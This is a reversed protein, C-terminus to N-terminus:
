NRERSSEEAAKLRQRILYLENKPTKKGTTSKKQFVDLVYIADSLRVTYVARYTNGEHSEVIELVGAGGFGLLPKASPHKGGLQAQLLAHGIEDQVDAPFKRLSAKSSGVWAVPKLQKGDAM